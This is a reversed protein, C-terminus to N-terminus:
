ILNVAHEMKSSVAMNLIGENLRQVEGLVVYHSRVLEELSCSMVAFDLAENMDRCILYIALRAASFHIFGAVIRRGTWVGRALSGCLHICHCVKLTKTKRHNDDAAIVDITWTLIWFTPPWLGNQM